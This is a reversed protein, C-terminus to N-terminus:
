FQLLWCCACIIVLFQSVHSMKRQRVLNVAYFATLRYNFNPGNYANTATWPQLVAQTASSSFQLWAYDGEMMGLDQARM